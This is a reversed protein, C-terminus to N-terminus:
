RQSAYLAAVDATTMARNYIRLEDIVGNLPWRWTSAGPAAIGIKWTTNGYDRTRDGSPWTTSGQLAGNVYIRTERATRDVVGVVHYFDGPSFAGASEIGVHVNDALYMGMAFRGGNTYYLGLHYGGKMLIGYYANNALGTGPPIM